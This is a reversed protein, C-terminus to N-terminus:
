LHSAVLSLVYAALAGAALLVILGDLHQWRLQAGLIKLHDYEADADMERRNRLVGFVRASGHVAGVAMGVVIALLLSHNLPLLLPLLWIGAYPNRTVLGPGLTTGWTLAQFAWPRRNVWGSPVQWALGFERVPLGLAERIGFWLAYLLAILSLVLPVNLLWSFISGIIGWVIAAPLVYSAIYFATRLM